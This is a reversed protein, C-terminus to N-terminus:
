NQTSTEHLRGLIDTKGLLTKDIDNSSLNNYLFITKVWELLENTNMTGKIINIRKHVLQINNPEYGLSSYIRDVSVTGSKSKDDSSAFSIDVGSIACKGNQKIYLNYIDNITLSFAIGRNIACKYIRHFFSSPVTHHHKMRAHRIKECGCSTTLDRILSAANVCIINGCECECEWKAKNFRDNEVRKLVTLKGYKNGKINVIRRSPTKGINHKACWQGVTQISCGVLRAVERRYLGEEEIKQQLFEKTLISDYRM